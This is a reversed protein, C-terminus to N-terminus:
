IPTVFLTQVRSTDYVIHRSQFKLGSNDRVIKDRAQGVQFLKSEGDQRTQFIAYNSTTEVQDGGLATVRLSSIVHRNWHAPFINAKRHSTIRDQLQRKNECSFLAIPYGGDENERPYLVYSADETFFDPWDELRDEDLCAVYDAYFDELALRARQTPSLETDFM